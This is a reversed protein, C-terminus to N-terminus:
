YEFELLEICKKILSPEEPSEILVLKNLGNIKLYKNQGNIVTSSNLIEEPDAGMNQIFAKLVDKDAFEVQGIYVESNDLVIPLLTLSFGDLNEFYEAWLPFGNEIGLRGIMLKINDIFPKLSEKKFLVPVEYDAGNCKKVIIEAIKKSLMQEDGTGKENIVSIYYSGKAIQVQFPNICSFKINGLRGICNTHSISFIGYASASNLMKYVDISYQRGDFKIKEAYLKDFGYELYLDAGGNIYGWLADGKFEKTDTVSIGPIDDEVIWPIKDPFPEGYLMRIFLFLTLIYM